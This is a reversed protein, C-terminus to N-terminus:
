MRQLQCCGLLYKTRPYLVVSFACLANPGLDFAILISLQRKKCRFGRRQTGVVCRLGYLCVFLCLLM